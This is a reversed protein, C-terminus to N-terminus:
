EYYRKINSSIVRTNCLKETWRYGSTKDMKVTCNMKPEDKDGSSLTKSARWHDVNFHDSQADRVAVKYAVYLQKYSFVCNVVSYFM